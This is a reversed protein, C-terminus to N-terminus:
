LANVGEIADEALDHFNAKRWDGESEHCGRKDPLLVAISHSALYKAIEQYWPNRRDSNGSGHIFVAGPNARGETLMAVGDLRLDGSRYRITKESFKM